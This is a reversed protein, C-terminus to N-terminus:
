LLVVREKWSERLQDGSDVEEMHEGELAVDVEDHPMSVMGCEGTLKVNQREWKAFRGVMEGVM